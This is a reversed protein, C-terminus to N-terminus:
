SKQLYYMQSGNIAYLANNIVFLKNYFQALKNQNISPIECIKLIKDEQLECIHEFYQLYTHGSVQFTRYYQGYSTCFDENLFGKKVM